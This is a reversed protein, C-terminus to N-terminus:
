DIAEHLRLVDTLFIEGNCRPCAFGFASTMRAKNLPVELAACTPCRALVWEDIIGTFEEFVLWRLSAMLTDGEMDRMFFDYLAKRVSHTLTNQGHLTVNRVPVSFKLREIKKLKAMDAPDIFPVEELNELDEISFFLAGFQFFCITASPFESRVAVETYGGDVAIVHKVPNPHIPVYPVRQEDEIEVESSTTPLRCKLLFDQVSADQIIHGHSAKSAFESPRRGRKSTYGM